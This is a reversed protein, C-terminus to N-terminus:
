TGSCFDRGDDNSTGARAYLCRSDDITILTGHMGQVTLDTQYLDQLGIQFFPGVTQSAALGLIEIAPTEGSM